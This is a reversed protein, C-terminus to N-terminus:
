IIIWKLVMLVWVKLISFALSKRAVLSILYKKKDYNIIKKLIQARLPPKQQALM